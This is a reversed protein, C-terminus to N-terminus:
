TRDNMSDLFRTSMEPLDSLAARVDHVIFKPQEAIEKLRAEIDAHTLIPKGGAPPAPSELAKSQDALEAKLRHKFDARPLDRLEGAIRLIAALRPDSAPLPADPKAVLAEVARDLQEILKGKAMRIVWGCGCIRCGASNFSSSVAKPADSRPRSKAFRSIRRLGCRSLGRSIGRCGSSWGSCGGRGSRRKLAQRSVLATMQKRFFLRASM